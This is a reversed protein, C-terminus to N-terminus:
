RLSAQAIELFHKSILRINEVLAFHRQDSVREYKFISKTTLDVSVTSTMKIEGILPILGAM